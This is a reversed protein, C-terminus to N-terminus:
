LVPLAPISHRAYNEACPPFNFKAPIFRGKPPFQGCEGIRSKAQSGLYPNTGATARLYELRVRESPLPNVPIQEGVTQPASGIAPACGYIGYKKHM